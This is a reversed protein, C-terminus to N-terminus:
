VALNDKKRQNKWSETEKQSERWEEENEPGKKSRSKDSGEKGDKWGFNPLIKKENTKEQINETAKESVSKQSM